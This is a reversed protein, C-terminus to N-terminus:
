PPGHQRACSRVRTLRRQRIFFHVGFRSTTPGRDQFRRPGRTRGAAQRHGAETSSSEAHPQCRTWWREQVSAPVDRAHYISQLLPVHSAAQSVLLRPTPKKPTVARDHFASGTKQEMWSLGVPSPPSSAEALLKPTAARSRIRAVTTSFGSSCKKSRRSSRNSPM